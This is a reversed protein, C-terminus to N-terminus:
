VAQDKDLHQINHYLSGMIAKEMEDRARDMEAKDRSETTHAFIAARYYDILKKIM